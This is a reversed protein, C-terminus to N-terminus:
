ENATWRKVWGVIEQRNVTQLTEINNKCQERPYRYLRNINNTFVYKTQSNVITTIEITWMNTLLIELQSLNHYNTKALTNRYSIWAAVEIFKWGPCLRVKVVICQREKMICVIFYSVLDYWIDELTETWFQNTNIPLIIWVFWAWNIIIWKHM